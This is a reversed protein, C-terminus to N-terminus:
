GLVLGCEPCEKHSTSFETTCAPCTAVEKSTDYVSTMAKWDVEHGKLSDMFNTTIVERIKDIDKLQAHFEVTVSCGRTCTAENHELRVEVGQTQLQDQLKKAEDLPFVALPKFEM